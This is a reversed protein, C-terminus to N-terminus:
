RTRHLTIDELALELEGRLQSQRDNDMRPVRLRVRDRHNTGMRLGTAHQVAEICPGRNEIGCELGSPTDGERPEDGETAVLSAVQDGGNRIVPQEDLRV